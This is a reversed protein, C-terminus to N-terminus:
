GWRELPTAAGLAPVIYGMKAMVARHAFLVSKIQEASLITKWQGARGERFFRSSSPPREVFGSVEEQQALGLLASISPALCFFASNMLAQRAPVSTIGAADVVVGAAVVVVGATVVVVVVVVALVLGGLVM